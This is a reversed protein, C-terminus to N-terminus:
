WVCIINSIPTFKREHLWCKSPEAYSAGFTTWPRWVMQFLLMLVARVVEKNTSRTMCCRTNSNEWFSLRPYFTKCSLIIAIKKKKKKPCLYFQVNDINIRNNNYAFFLSNATYLPPMSGMDLQPVTVVPTNGAHKWFLFSVISLQSSPWLCSWAGLRRRASTSYSSILDFWSLSFRSNSVLRITAVWLMQLLGSSSLVALSVMTDSHWKNSFHFLGWSLRMCDQRPNGGEVECVWIPLFIFLLM